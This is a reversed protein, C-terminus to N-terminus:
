LGYCPSFHVIILMVNVMDCPVSTTITEYEDHDHGVLARCMLSISSKYIDRKGDYTKNIHQELDNM